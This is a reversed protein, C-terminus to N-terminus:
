SAALAPFLEASVPSHVFIGAEYAPMMKNSNEFDPENPHLEGV